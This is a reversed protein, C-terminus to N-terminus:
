FGMLYSIKLLFINDAPADLLERRDRNFVLNGVPASGSRTQTWVLFATSGPRWEWRLVGTGRLSRFNFNPDGLGFAPAPGGGDPDILYRREGDDSRTTIVSGVDRGYIRRELERPAAFEQFGYYDGSAILPQAFLELSLAPTFTMSGRTSMYLQRQDLQAFVYRRGAFLTATSDRVSSVYQDTTTSTSFGPGVSLSVNSAPKLTASVSVSSNRSGDDGRGANVNLSLVVPKRRDSNIGSFFGTGAARGIVPGGRTARDDLAAFERQFGAYGNWYSTLTADGVVTVGRGTVDGDYNSYREVGTM